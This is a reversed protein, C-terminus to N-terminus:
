YSNHPLPFRPAVSRFYQYRFLYYPSPCPPPAPSGPFHTEGIIPLTSHPFHLLRSSTHPISLIVLIRSDSLLMGHIVRFAHQQDCLSNTIALSDGSHAHRGRTVRLGQTLRNIIKPFASSSSILIVSRLKPGFCRHSEFSTSSFQLDIV